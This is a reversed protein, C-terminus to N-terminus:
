SLKAEKGHELAIGGKIYKGQTMCIKVLKYENSRLFMDAKKSLLSGTGM